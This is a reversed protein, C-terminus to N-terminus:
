YYNIIFILIIIKLYTALDNRRKKFKQTLLSHLIQWHVKKDLLELMQVM